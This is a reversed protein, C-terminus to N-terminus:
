AAVGPQCQGSQLRKLKAKAVDLDNQIERVPRLCMGARADALQDQFHEVVGQQKMIAANEAASSPTKM